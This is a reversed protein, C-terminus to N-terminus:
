SSYSECSYQHYSNSNLQSNVRVERSQLIIWFEGYDPFILSLNGYIRDTFRFVTFVCM